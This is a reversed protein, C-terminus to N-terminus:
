LGVSFGLILNFFFKGLLGSTKRQYIRPVTTFLLLADKKETLQVEVRIGNSFQMAYGGHSRDLILDVGRLNIVNLDAFESMDLLFGEVFVEVRNLSNLDIQISNMNLGKTAVSKFVTGESMKRNEVLPGIRVQVDFGIEKVSLFTFEGYGNFTYELNDLTLFHPDGTGGGTNPQVWGTGDQSPRWKYYHECNDTLKCCMYYPLVDKYFHDWFNQSHGLDLTGGGPKGVKLRGASDYCCQQGATHGALTFSATSRYCAASGPHYFECLYPGYWNIPNCAPDITFNAISQPFRGNTLM